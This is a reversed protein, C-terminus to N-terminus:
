DDICFVACDHINKMNDAVITINNGYTNLQLLCILFLPNTLMLSSNAWKGFHTWNEFNPCKQFVKIM